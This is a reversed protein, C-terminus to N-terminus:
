FMLGMLCSYGNENMFTGSMQVYAGGYVQLRYGYILSVGSSASDHSAGTTGEEYDENKLEFDAGLYPTFSKWRKACLIALDVSMYRYGIDIKIDEYEDLDYCGCTLGLYWKWVPSMVLDGAINRSIGLHGKLGSLGSSRRGDVDASGGGLMLNYETGKMTRDALRVMYSSFRATEMHGYFFETHTYYNEVCVGAEESELATDLLCYHVIGALPWSLPFSILCILSFVTKKIM